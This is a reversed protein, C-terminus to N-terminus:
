NGDAKLQDLYRDRAETVGKLDKLRQLAEDATPIINEDSEKSLKARLKEYAESAMEGTSAPKRTEEDSITKRNDVFYTRVGDVMYIHDERYEYYKGSILVYKKDDISEIKEEYKVAPEDSASATSKQLPEKLDKHITKQNGNKKSNAQKLEKITQLSKVMKEPINSFGTFCILVGSAIASWFFKKILGV